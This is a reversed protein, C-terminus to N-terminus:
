KCLPLDHTTCPMQQAPVDQSTVTTAKFALSGGSVALAVASATILPLAVTRTIKHQHILWAGVGGLVVAVGAGASWHLAALLALGATLTVTRAVVGVM